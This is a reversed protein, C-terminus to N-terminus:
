KDGEESSSSGGIDDVDLQNIFDRFASLQDLEQEDPPRGSPEEQVAQAEEGSETEGETEGPVGAAELVSEEAYITVEARVALALADSPRADIGVDQGNVALVIQAYFTNQDLNSVVIHQVSAGLQGIVNQLLDHTMPRHMTTGQLKVAIADAEARGIWIPLYRNAGKEKLVVVPQYNSQSVRLSDIVMERM